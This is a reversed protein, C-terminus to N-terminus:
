DNEIAKHYVSILKQTITHEDLDLVTNRGNIRKKDSLVKCLGAAITEPRDDKCVVCGEIKGIRERVDGVDTSVVPLNCALAEKVVNPSGEQVSALVLVDSANMFKPIREHPVDGLCLLEINPNKARALAIAERILPLRKVPNSPNGVFLVFDKDPLELARRAQGREIPFFVKLDIGSPLVHYNKLHLRVALRKSVVIRENAIMAAYHSILRLVFGQLTQRSREGVIGNVDDGRFTVVLPKRKPVALLTSQGWQAHVLDFKSQQILAQVSRRAHVYNAIKKNGRFPFVNVQIGAERLCDVQRVIFPVAAPNISSPWESTIM